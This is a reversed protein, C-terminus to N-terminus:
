IEEKRVFYLVPILTFFVMFLMSIMSQADASDSSVNACGCNIGADMTLDQTKANPGVTVTQTYGSSNAQNINLDNNTNSNPKSFVYGAYEPTNPINFRVKYSGEPVDFGYQGNADTTTESIKTGQDDFLEVLAGAIPKENTDLNGNANKDIWFHTGIHYTSSTPPIPEIVPEEVHIKYHSKDSDTV